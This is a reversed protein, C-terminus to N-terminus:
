CFKEKTPLARRAGAGKPAPGTQAGGDALAVAFALSTRNHTPEHGGIQQWARGWATALLPIAEGGRGDPHLRVWSGDVREVCLDFRAQKMNPDWEPFFIGHFGVVGQGIVERANQRRGALYTRWDFDEGDTLDVSVDTVTVMNKDGLPASLAARWHKLVEGAARAGVRRNPAMAKVADWTFIGGAPAIAGGANVGGAGSDGAWNSWQGVSGMGSFGTHLVLPEKRKPNGTGIVREVIDSFGRGSTLRLACPRMLTPLRPRVALMMRALFARKNPLRPGVAPM